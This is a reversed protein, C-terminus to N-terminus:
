PLFGIRQKQPAPVDEGTVEKLVARLEAGIDREPDAPLTSAAGNTHLPYSWDDYSTVPKM